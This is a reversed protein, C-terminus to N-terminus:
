PKESLQAEFRDLLRKMEKIQTGIQYVPAMTTGLEECKAMLAYMSKISSDVSECTIDVSTKYAESCGVTIASMKHLNTRLNGMMHDVTDAVRRAAMELDMIAGPDIPPASDPSQTLLSSPSRSVGSSTAASTASSTSALSRQSSRRSGLSGSDAGSMPSSRRIIESLDDAVFEVLVGKRTLTGQPLSRSMVDDGYSLDGRVRVTQIDVAESRTRQHGGSGEARVAQARGQNRQPESSSRIREVCQLPRPLSLSEPRPAPASAGSVASFVDPIIEHSDVSLSDDTTQNREECEWAATTQKGEKGETSNSNLRVQRVFSDSIGEQSDDHPSEEELTEISDSPTDSSGDCGVKDQEERRGEGTNCIVTVADASDPSFIDGNVQGQGRDADVVSTSDMSSWDDERTCCDDGAIGSDVITGQYPGGDATTCPLGNPTLHPDLDKHCHDQSVDTNETQEPGEEQKSVVIGDM